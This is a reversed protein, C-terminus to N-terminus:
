KRTISNLLDALRVTARVLQDSATAEHAQTYATKTPSAITALVSQEGTHVNIKTRGNKLSGPYAHSGVAEPTVRHGM